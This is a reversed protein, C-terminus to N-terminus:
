AGRKGFRSHLSVANQREPLVKEIKKPVKKWARSPDGLWVAVTCCTPPHYKKPIKEANKRSAAIKRELFGNSSSKLRSRPSSLTIIPGNRRIPWIPQRNIALSQRLKAQPHSCRFRSKILQVASHELPHERHPAACVNALNEGVSAVAKSGIAICLFNARPHSCRFRHKIHQVASHECPHECHPVACVKALNEGVSAVTRSWM